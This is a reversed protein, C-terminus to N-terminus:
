KLTQYLINNEEDLVLYDGVPISNAAEVAEEAKEYEGIISQSNNEIIKVM